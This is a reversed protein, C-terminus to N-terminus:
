KIKKFFIVQLMLVKLKVFYIVRNRNLKINLLVWLGSEIWISSVIFQGGGVNLYKKLKAIFVESQLKEYFLINFAKIDKDERKIYTLNGWHWHWLHTTYM